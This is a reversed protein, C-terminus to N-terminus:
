AKIRKISEKSILQEINPDVIKFEELHTESLNQLSKEVSVSKGELETVQNKVIHFLKIDSMIKGQEFNNKSNM